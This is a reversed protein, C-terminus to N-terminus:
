LINELQKLHTITHTADCPLNENGHDIYICDMGANLAGKIDVEINDGIMISDSIEAEAMSLAFDFIEKKPKLSNSSESTIVYSFFKDLGSNRLKNWQTDHFGNTIVHLAYSKKQLYSLIEM